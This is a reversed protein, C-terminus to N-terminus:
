QEEKEEKKAEFMELLKNKSEEEGNNITIQQKFSPDLESFHLIKSTANVRANENKGNIIIDALSDIYNNINKRINQKAEKVKDDLAQDIAKQFEKNNNVWYYYTAKPVQVAEYCEKITHNGEVVLGILKLQKETLM